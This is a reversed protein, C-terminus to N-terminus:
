SLISWMQSGSQHALYILASGPKRANVQADASGAVLIAAAAAALCRLTTFHM